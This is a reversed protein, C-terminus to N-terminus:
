MKLTVFARHAFVESASYKFVCMEPLVWEALELQLLFKPWFM